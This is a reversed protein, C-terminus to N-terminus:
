PLELLNVIENIRGLSYNIRNLRMRVDNFYPPWEEETKPPCDSTPNERSVSALRERLISALEEARNAVQDAYVTLKTAVCERIEKINQKSNDM